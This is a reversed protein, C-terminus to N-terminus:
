RCEIIWWGQGFGQWQAAGIAILFTNVIVWAGYIIILGIVVATFLKKARSIMESRGFAFVYMGGGIAIMLGALPPVIYFLLFDIIKDIMVFFDCLTCPECECIDDTTPDDCSRGCPVLGGPKLCDPCDVGAKTRCIACVPLVFIFSFFIALLFVAAKKRM